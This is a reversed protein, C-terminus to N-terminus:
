SGFIQHGVKHGRELIDGQHLFMVETTVDTGEMYVGTSLFENTNASSLDTSQLEATVTKDGDCPRDNCTTTTTTTKTTTATTTTTTATNDDTDAAAATEMADLKRLLRAPVVREWSPLFWRM